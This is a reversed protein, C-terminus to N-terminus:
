ITAHHGLFLGSRHFRRSGRAGDGARSNGLRAVRCRVGLTTGLPCSQLQKLLEVVSRRDSPEVANSYLRPPTAHLNSGTGAGNCSRERFATAWLAENNCRVSIWSKKIIKRARAPLDGSVVDHIPRNVRAAKVKSVAAGHQGVNVIELGGNPVDHL